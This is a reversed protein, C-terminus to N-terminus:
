RYNLTQIINLNNEKGKLKGPKRIDWVEKTTVIWDKWKAEWSERKEPKVLPDFLARMQDEKTGDEPEPNSKTLGLCISDTDAYATKFAGDQLHEELFFM